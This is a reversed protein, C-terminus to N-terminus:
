GNKTRKRAKAAQVEQELKFCKDHMRMRFEVLSKQHDEREQDLTKKLEQVQVEFSRTKQELVKFDASRRKHTAVTMPGYEITVTTSPSHHHDDERSHLTASSGSSSSSADHESLFSTPGIYDDEYELVLLRNRLRTSEEQFINM